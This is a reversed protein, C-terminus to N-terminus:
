TFSHLLSDVPLVSRSHHSPQSYSAKILPVQLKQVAFSLKLELASTSLQGQLTELNTYYAQEQKRYRMIIIIDCSLLPMCHVPSNVFIFPSALVRSLALEYTETRHRCISSVCPAGVQIVIDLMCLQLAMMLVGAERATMLERAMKRLQGRRYWSMRIQM